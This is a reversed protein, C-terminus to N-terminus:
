FRGARQRASTGASCVLCSLALLRAFLDERSPLTASESNLKILILNFLLLRGRLPTQDSGAPQLEIDVPGGSPRVHEAEWNIQVAILKM